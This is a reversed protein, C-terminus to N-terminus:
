ITGTVADENIVPRLEFTGDPVHRWHIPLGKFRLWDGTEGFIAAVTARSMVIYEPDRGHILRYEVMALKIAENLGDIKVSM